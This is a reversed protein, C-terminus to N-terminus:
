HPARLFSIQFREEVGPKSESELHLTTGHVSMKAPPSKPERSLSGPVGSGPTLYEM